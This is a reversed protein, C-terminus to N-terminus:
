EIFHLNQTEELQFLSPNLIIVCTVEDRDHYLHKCGIYVSAIRVLRAKLAILQEQVTDFRKKMPLKLNFIAGTAKRKELWDGMLQAVKDPKEIMDCVLWDVHGEKPQYKFGDVQYHEVLGSDMLAQDIMGNDIAEVKIGRKVLQYTWGGPCAGLDVATMGASFLQSQQDPTFFHKIAEELKLTSRSPAEHPFKLRMIGMFDNNRDEPDSVCLVAQGSHEFFLHLFPLSEDRSQSLVKNKRLTVRLPVVFKKCFRAIQKGDETDAYEVLVDGFLKQKSDALAECIVSIRDSAGDFSLEQQILLKQRAFILNEYAPFRGKNQQSFEIFGTQRGFRAFGYGNLQALKYEIECALDAEYGQRCYLLYKFM